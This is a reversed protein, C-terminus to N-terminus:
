SQLVGLAEDPMAAARRDSAAAMPLRLVFCAGGGDRGECHVTGHHRQAISRVLALGLGV